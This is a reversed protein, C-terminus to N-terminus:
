WGGRWDANAARAKQAELRAHRRKDFVWQMVSFTIIVVPFFAIVIFMMNTIVPDTTEGYWGQGGHVHAHAFAEPAFTLLLVSFTTFAAILRARRMPVSYGM